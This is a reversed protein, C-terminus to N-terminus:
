QHAKAHMELATIAANCNAAATDCEQALAEMVAAEARYHEAQARHSAASTAMRRSERVLVDVAVLPSREAKLGFPASEILM